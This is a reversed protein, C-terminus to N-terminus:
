EPLTLEIVATETCFTIAQCILQFYKGHTLRLSKLPFVNNLNRDWAVWQNSYATPDAYLKLTLKNTGISDRTPIM